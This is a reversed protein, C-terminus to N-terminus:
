RKINFQILKIINKKNIKLIIEKLLLIYKRHDIIILITKKYKEIM